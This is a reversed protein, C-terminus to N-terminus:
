VLGVVAQSVPVDDYVVWGRTLRPDTSRWAVGRRPLPRWAHAPRTYRRRAKRSRRWRPMELIWSKVGTLVCDRRPHCQVQHTLSRTLQCLVGLPPGM